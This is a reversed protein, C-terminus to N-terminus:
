ALSDSKRTRFAILREIWFEFEADSSRYKAMNCTHCFPRVNDLTYGKSNDKRDIGTYRFSYEKIRHLQSPAIGCSQCNSSVIKEFQELSLEWEYGRTKADYASARFKNLLAIQEKSRGSFHPVRQKCGCSRISGRKVDSVSLVKEKGCICLFIWRARGAQGNWRLATLYHFKQGDIQNSRHLRPM